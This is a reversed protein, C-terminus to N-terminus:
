TMAEKLIIRNKIIHKKGKKDVHKEFFILM